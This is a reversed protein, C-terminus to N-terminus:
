RGVAQIERPLDRRGDAIPAGVADVEVELGEGRGVVGLEGDEDPRDPGLEVLDVTTVLDREVRRARDAVVGDGVRGRSAPRVGDQDHAVVVPRGGRARDARDRREAPGAVVDAVRDDRVRGPDCRRLQDEANRVVAPGPRRAAAGDLRRVRAAGPRAGRRGDDVVSRGVVEGLVAALVVRGLPNRPSGVLSLVAGRGVTADRRPALEVDVVRRRDARLVVEDVAVSQAPGPDPREAVVPASGLEPRGDLALEHGVRRRRRGAHLRERRTLHVRQERHGPRAPVVNSDDAIVDLGRGIATGPRAPQACRLRGGAGPVADVPVGIREPDPRAVRLAVDPRPVHGRCRGASRREGDAAEPEDLDIAERDPGGGIRACRLETRIRVTVKDRDDTPGRCHVAVGPVLDDTREGSPARDSRHVRRGPDGRATRTRGPQRRGLGGVRGPDVGREAVECEVAAAGHAEARRGARGGVPDERRVAVAGAVREGDVPGVVAGEVAEDQADEPGIPRQDAVHRDILERAASAM